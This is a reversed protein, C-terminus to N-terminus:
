RLSEKYPNVIGKFYLWKGKEKKFFSQEVFSADSGGIKLIAEFTVEAKSEEEKTELIKLGCFTTKRCFHKLEEQWVKMDRQYHPNEKHTTEVIYDTLGLAYACYRSRMLELATRPLDGEHFKKCCDKYDKGSKCPCSCINNM